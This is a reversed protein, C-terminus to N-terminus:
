YGKEIMNRAIEAFVPAAIKGGYKGNEAFVAISYRPNRAPFYGAFWAHVVDPNGTEASGTKGGAGGYYGAVADTGTGYSSTAAEMLDRITDATEKSIIRRGEKVRLNKVINGNSDVISDAINVRNRIGGNAVTAVMDAVQLPTALLAGQGISLNAIDAQSYYSDVPPLSGPAEAIGQGAIGTVEGLGFKRAMEILKRYGTKLSLNIFYSNCSVAFAKEMDLYGHGGEFYSHCRFILGNVNVAGECYYQWNRTYIDYPGYPYLSYSYTNGPSVPTNYYFGDGAVHGGNTIGGSTDQNELFAAVDVIKFVSGLNYAAVAKNFLENGDSDLYNEVAEQDFDPRSAMALIDGTLVDEVVVAGSIGNNDMAEEVIKQVHYDLTLRVNLMEGTDMGKIRYGLGKIPNKTADTVTGIIYAPGNKLVNEYAKEIGAQGVRDKKSLYGVVHKALGDKGYRDLSNLITVWDVGMQRIAGAAEEDIEFLSPKGSAVLSDMMSVDMDLIECVKERELGPEPMDATKIFALYKRDRNTFPIGNRDLINGRIREVNINSLRQKFASGALKQANFLQIHLFRGILLFFLSTIIGGLLLVRKAHM